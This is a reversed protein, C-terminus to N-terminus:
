PFLADYRWISFIDGDCAATKQRIEKRFIRTIIVQLVSGVIGVTTAVYIGYLKFSIFFLLVVFFDYFM